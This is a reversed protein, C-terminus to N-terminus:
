LTALLAVLARALKDQGAANLHGGDSSYGPYLAYGYRGSVRNGSPDTSELLALDFVPAVGGYAGRVLDNYAERRPNRPADVYTDTTLPATVHVITVGPYAAALADVKARYADFLSQVTGGAVFHASEDEFDVWCFKFFAVDVVAGVGADMTTGFANIKGIPDLNQGNLAEAWIGVGMSAASSTTVVRPEAGTNASLLTRVGDMVNQGVSRHGFYIAKGSLVALQAALDTTTVIVEAVDSKSPDAVSTAVVHYTGVTPPAMYIGDSSVTGGPAGEQVTWDVRVDSTGAVAASFTATGGTVVSTSHPTVTVQVVPAAAVTVTASGSTEPSATSTAVVHYQGLVGPATYHGTDTVSGGATGELVSWTVSVSAGAARATFDVVGNPAVQPAAPLVEVSPPGDKSAASCAALLVCCSAVMLGRSLNPM